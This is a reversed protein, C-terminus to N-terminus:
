ESKVWNAMEMIEAIAADREAEWDITAYYNMKENHWTILEQIYNKSMRLMMQREVMCEVQESIDDSNDYRHKAEEMGTNLIEYEKDIAEMTAMAVATFVTALEKM